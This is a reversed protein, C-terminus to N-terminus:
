SSRVPTEIKDLAALLADFQDPMPSATVCDYAERLSRGIRAQRMVVPDFGTANMASEELNELPGAGRVTKV